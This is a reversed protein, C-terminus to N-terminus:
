GAVSFGLMLGWGWRAARRRVPRDALTRELSLVGIVALLVLALLFDVEYRIVASWYLGVALACIGFLLVTATASGSERQYFDSKRLM